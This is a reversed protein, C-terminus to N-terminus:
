SSKYKRDEWIFNPDNSLDKKFKSLNRLKLGAPILGMAAWALTPLGTSPLQKLGAYYAPASTGVGVNRYEIVRTQTAGGLGSINVNASGGAGGYAIATGGTANSGSASGSSNGNTNSNNNANAVCVLTGQSNVGQSTTNAPCSATANAGGTNSPATTPAPQIDKSECRYTGQCAPNQDSHCDYYASNGDYRLSCNNYTTQSCTTIKTVAPSDCTPAMVQGQNNVNSPNTGSFPLDQSGCYIKGVCSNYAQSAHCEYYARNGDYQVGGCSDYGAQGCVANPRVYQDCSDASATTPLKAVGLVLLFTLILTSLFHKIMIVSQIISHTSHITLVEIENLM